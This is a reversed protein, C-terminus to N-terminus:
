EYIADEKLDERLKKLSRYLITKATGLPIELTEAIEKITFGQYFRLVIVSKEEPALIEILDQLTLNLSIDESEEVPIIAEFKPQWQIVNKRKRLVDLACNIAIRMVWTKFYAPETLKNISKFSRYATDQVVDLADSENKVYLFATRYIIEEHDHFLTLFAKSNGKQAKRM